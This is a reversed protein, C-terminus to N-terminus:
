ASEATGAAVPALADLALDVDEDDNYLHFSARVAGARVSCKIGRSHLREVAAAADDIPLTVVPAAPEPVGLERAFRRALALDHEAIADVGLGHILELAPRAGAASLWPLSTDLRRADDWLDPPLGYYRGDWDRQAKWGALWPEVEALREPRVYLFSLGRPAPIWKYASCALYDIGAVDVSIAGVAHTADVFLRTGVDAPSVAPTLGRGHRSLVSLDTVRGDASQVSSLAVLATRDDIADALRELPVARLEVGRRELPTWPFLASSFDDEHVIVNDGESAPLSAAITGAAASVSTTLAIEGARAGVIEAFLARCAEADAEWTRWDARTQWGTLAAEVARVVSRPPLGYTATDLYGRAAEREYESPALM